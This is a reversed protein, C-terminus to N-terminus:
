EYVEMGEQPHVAAPLNNWDLYVDFLSDINTDVDIGDM